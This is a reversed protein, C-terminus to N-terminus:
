PKLIEVARWMLAVGALPLISYIGSVDYAMYLLLLGAAAFVAAKITNTTRTM